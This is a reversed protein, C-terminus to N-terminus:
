LWLCKSTNTEECHGECKGGFPSVPRGAWSFFSHDTGAGMAAVDFWLVADIAAIFCSSGYDLECVTLVAM